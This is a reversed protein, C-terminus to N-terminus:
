ICEAFKWSLRRFLAWGGLFVVLATACATWFAGGHPLQGEALCDRYAQIIPTMPNCVAIKGLLSGDNKIPYVVCTLFMWLQVAVGLVQRVDRYFLNAMALLMGLGCTFLLQVLVVVPLFLAPAGIHFDWTTTRDFYVALALFVFAAICFDVLAAGVAALPFVERPFYVKTVLNRNSVLTNVCGLLSASFFTWPALGLYAFVPYPM